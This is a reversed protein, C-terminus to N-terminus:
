PLEEKVISITMRAHFYGRKVAAHEAIGMREFIKDDM